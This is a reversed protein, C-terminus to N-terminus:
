KQLSITAQPLWQQIPISVIEQEKYFTPPKVKPIKIPASLADEARRSIQVHEYGKLMSRLWTLNKYTTIYPNENEIDSKYLIRNTDAESEQQRGAEYILKTLLDDVETLSLHGAHYINLETIPINNENKFLELCEKKQQEHSTNNPLLLSKINVRGYQKDAKDQELGFRIFTAEGSANLGEIVACVQEDAAVTQKNNNTICETLTRILYVQWQQYSIMLKTNFLSTQKVEIVQQAQLATDKGSQHLIDKLHTLRKLEANEAQVVASAI